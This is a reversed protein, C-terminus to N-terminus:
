SLSEVGLLMHIWAADGSWTEMVKLPLIHEEYWEDMRRVEAEQVLFSICCWWVIMSYYDYLTNIYFCIM